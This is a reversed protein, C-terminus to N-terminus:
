QYVINIACRGREMDEKHRYLFGDRLYYYTPDGNYEITAFPSDHHEGDRWRTQNVKNNGVFEITATYDDRLEFKNGYEDTFVGVFGDEKDGGKNGSGCGFAVICCAAIIVTKVIEKVM